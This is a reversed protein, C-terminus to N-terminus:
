RYGTARGNELGRDEKYRACLHTIKKPHVCTNISFARKRKVTQQSVPQATTTAIEDSFREIFGKDDLYYDTEDIMHAHRFLADNLANDKRLNSDNFIFNNYVHSKLRWFYDLPETNIESTQAISGLVAHDDYELEIGFYRAARFIGEITDVNIPSYFLCNLLPFSIPHSLFEIYERWIGFKLLVCSVPGEKNAVVNHLVKHHNVGFRRAFFPESSHSFPGHGIDHLLAHSAALLREIRTLHLAESLRLALRYVGQSHDYRSGASTELAVSPVGEIAGMFSVNKLRQVNFTENLDLTLCEIEEPHTPTM